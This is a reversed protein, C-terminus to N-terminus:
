LYILFGGIGVSVPNQGDVTHPYQGFLNSAHAYLVSAGEQQSKEITGCFVSLMVHATGHEVFM